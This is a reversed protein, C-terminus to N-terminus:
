NNKKSKKIKEKFLRFDLEQTERDPIKIKGAKREGVPLQIDNLATDKKSIKNLRKGDVVEYMGTEEGLIWYTNPYEEDTVSKLFLVLTDGSEFLPTDNFTWDSNGQQLVNIFEGKKENSGKVVDTVVANFITKPIPDVLEGLREDITIEVILDSLNVAEEFPYTQLMGNIEGQQNLFYNEEPVEKEKENVELALEKSKVSVEQGLSQSSGCGFM